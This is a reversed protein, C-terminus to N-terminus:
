SGGLHQVQGQGTVEAGPAVAVESSDLRAAGLVLVGARDAGDGRRWCAAEAAAPGQGGVTLALAAM